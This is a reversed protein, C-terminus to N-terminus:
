QDTPGHISEGHQWQSNKGHYGWCFWTDQTRSLTQFHTGPIGRPYLRGTSEAKYHLFMLFIRPRLRGPIGHGVEAQRPVGKGKLKVPPTAHWLSWFCLCLKQDTVQFVAHFFKLRLYCSFSYLSIQSHMTTLIRFYFALYMCCLNKNKTKNSACCIEPVVIGMM